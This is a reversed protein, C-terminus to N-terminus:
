DTHCDGPGDMDTFPVADNKKHSLLILIGNYIHWTKIREETSLCKLQRWIRAITFLVAIFLPTCAYKQIIAKEPYIDM